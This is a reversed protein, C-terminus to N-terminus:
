RWGGWLVRRISHCRARHVAAGRSFHAPYGANPRVGPVQKPRYINRLAAARPTKKPCDTPVVRKASHAPAGRVSARGRPTPRVSTSDQSVKAANKTAEPPPLPLEPTSSGGRARQVGRAPTRGLRPAPHRSVPARTEPRAPAARAARCCRASCAMFYAPRVSPAAPHVPNVPTGKRSPLDSIFHSTLRLEGEEGRAELHHTMGAHSRQPHQGPAEPQAAGGGGSARGRKPTLTQAHTAPRQWAAASRCGADLVCRQPQTCGSGGCAGTRGLRRM